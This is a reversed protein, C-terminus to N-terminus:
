WFSEAGAREIYPAVRMLYMMDASDQTLSEMYDGKYCTMLEPIRM